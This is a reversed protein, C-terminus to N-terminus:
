RLREALTIYGIGDTYNDEHGPDQKSRSAKLLVLLWCVDHATVETGIYASFLAAIRYLNAYGDQEGGYSQGRQEVISM